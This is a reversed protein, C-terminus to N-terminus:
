PAEAGDVVIRRQAPNGADSSPFLVTPRASLRRYPSPGDFLRRVAAPQFLLLIFRHRVNISDVSDSLVAAGCPAHYSDERQDYRDAQNESRHDVRLLRPHRVRGRPDVNLLRRRRRASRRGTHHRDRNRRGSAGTGRSRSSRAPRGTGRTSGASRAGRASRTRGGRRAVLQLRIAAHPHPALGPMQWIVSYRGFRPLRNSLTSASPKSGKQM